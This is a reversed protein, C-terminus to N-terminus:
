RQLIAGVIIAVDLMIWAICELYITPNRHQIGYVLWAAASFLYASWTVVSVGAAGQTWVSWAQPITLLVTVFGVIRLFIDFRTAPHAPGPRHHM